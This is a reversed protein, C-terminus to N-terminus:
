SILKDLYNNNIFDFANKYMIDYIVDQADQDIKKKIIPNKDWYENLYVILNNYLVTISSSDRYSNLPNIVGDYDSGLCICKWPNETFGNTYAFEAITKIQNWFYEAEYFAKKERKRFINKFWKSFRNKNYGLIRQDMEVGIIGSSKYIKLIDNKNLNIQYKEVIVGKEITVAGHSWIIPINESSYKESELISYYENRAEVSMHKVDILIRKCNQNSLLLDIANKGITSIPNLSDNVSVKYERMGYTQDLLKGSLDFFSKAHTCLGNYFHHAFTVFFIPYPLKKIEDINIKLNEWQKLNTTDNGNCLFHCGEVTPIVFLNSKSNLDQKQKVLSYMKSGGHPVENNLALLYHYENIFDQFYNYEESVINDVRNKGLLSAFQAIYNEFKKLINSNVNIFQKEIPYLSVCVIKHQNMTLTTFDSQRYRSIGLTNEFLNDIISYKDAFWICASDTVSKKNSNSYFSNGYPKLTSHLHIDIIPTSTQM